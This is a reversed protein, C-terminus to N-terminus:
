RSRNQLVKQLKEEEIEGTYKWVQKGNQFLLMTPTESADFHEAIVAEKSIDIKLMKIATGYGTNRRIVPEMVKCHGCWPAHLFIFVEKNSTLVKSLDNLTFYANPKTTKLSSVYPRSSSTWGTFGNELYHVEKFSLGKLFLAANKSKTGTQCYLYVPRATNLKAKALEEFVANDYNLSLARKIHGEAFSDSPRIDVLQADPNHKLALQFTTADLGKLSQSFLSNSLFLLLCVIRIQNM